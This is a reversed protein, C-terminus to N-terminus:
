KAMLEQLAQDIAAANFGAAIYRIKGEGDIIVNTPYAAVAFAKRVAGDADIWIPYTLGHQQRFARAKALPGAEEATDIAVVVLGQDRLKQWYEKELHPAE